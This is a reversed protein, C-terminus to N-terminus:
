RCGGQVGRSGCAVGVCMRPDSAHEVKRKVMSHTHQEVLWRVSLAGDECASVLVRKQPLLSEGARSQAAPATPRARPPASSRGPRQLKRPRGGKPPGLAELLKRSRDDTAIDACGKCSAFTHLTRWDAVGAAHAADVQAGISLLDNLAQKDVHACARGRRVLMGGFDYVGKRGAHVRSSDEPFIDIFHEAVAVPDTHGTVGGRHLVIPTKARSLDCGTDYQCAYGAYVRVACGCVEHQAAM